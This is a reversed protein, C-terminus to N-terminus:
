RLILMKKTQIFDERQRGDKQRVTKEASMDARYTVSLRYFYVGPGVARGSQDRGDWVVSHYGAGQAEDVLSRVLRGRVDYVSLNVLQWNGTELQRNGALQYRITTSASFPNPYCQSLQCNTISLQYNVLEGVGTLYITKQLTDNAPNSDGPVLTYVTVAWPGSGVVQFSDPFDVEVQSGSSLRHVWTSDEHGDITCRVQFSDERVTGYNHIMASVPYSAGGSVSDPPSIISDVGGDHVARWAFISKSLTDNWPNRDGLLLTTVTMLYSSSDPSPATWPAFTVPVSSGPALDRVQVMHFYSDITCTVDFTETSDGFNKVAIIPIYTSDCYVTDPPTFIHLVGSDHIPILSYVTNVIEDNYPIEDGSLRTEVEIEYYLDKHEPMWVGFTVVSEQGSGLSVQVSDAWEPQLSDQATIFCRVWVGTQANQGWNAVRARIQVFDYITDRSPSDISVTAFDALSRALALAIEIITNEVDELTVLAHLTDLGGIGLDFLDLDAMLPLSVQEAITGDEADIKYLSASNMGGTLIQHTYPIYCCARETGSSWGGQISDLVPDAPDLLNLRYIGGTGGFSVQRTYKRDFDMGAAWDCGMAARMDVYYGSPVGGYTYQRDYCYGPGIGSVWFYKGDWSIGWPTEAGPNATSFAREISWENPNLRYVFKDNRSVLYFRSDRSCYTIGALAQPGLGAFTSSDLSDGLGLACATMSLTDNAYNADLPYNTYVTVQYCNGYGDPTWPDFTIQTTADPPLNSVIRTDSYVNTQQSDIDCTVPFDSAANRGWNKLTAQPLVPENAWLERSPSDISLSGVDYDYHWIRFFHMISDALALKTSPPVADSLGGFEFSTGISRYFFSGDYAVGNFYFPAQNAFIAFAMGLPAIRDMWANDGGYSFIMGETFTGTQGPITDTDGSGHALGDIMFYPHLATPPDFYWTEGGEMYISTEVHNILYSVLSDVAVPHLALSQNNPWVGLCIFIARYAPLSGLYPGIDTTYQGVYGATVLTSEIVPGSNTNLDLDWVLFDAARSPPLPWVLIALSFFLGILRM